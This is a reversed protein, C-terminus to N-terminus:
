RIHTGPNIGPSYLRGTRLASLRVVKMSVDPNAWAQLPIVKVKVDTETCVNFAYLLLLFLAGRM